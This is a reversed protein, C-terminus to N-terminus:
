GLELIYLWYRKGFIPEIEKVRKFGAKEYIHRAADMFESTHLAIIKEENEIACEICLQTLKKAIGRGEFRPNVGVMRIYSWDAQFIKTPNGSPILLAMGVIENNAVCVFCKSKEILDVYTKESSLNTYLKNWNEETLVQQFQGYATIGLALLHKIDATAGERYHLEM